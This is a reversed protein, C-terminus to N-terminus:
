RKINKGLLFYHYLRLKEVSSSYGGYFDQSISVAARVKFTRTTAISTDVAEGFRDVIIKMLKNDCELEVITEDGDFMKFVKCAYDAVNFGVPALIADVSMIKVKFCAISM